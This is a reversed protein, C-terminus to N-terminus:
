ESLDDWSGSVSFVHGSGDRFYLAKVGAAFSTDGVLDQEQAGRPQDGNKLMAAMVEESHSDTNHWAPLTHGQAAPTPATGRAIKAELARIQAQYSSQLNQLYQTIAPDLETPVPLTSVSDSM